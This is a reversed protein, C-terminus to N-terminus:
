WRKINFRKLLNPDDPSEMAEIPYTAKKLDTVYIGNSNKRLGRFYEGANGLWFLFITCNPDETWKTGDYKSQLDLFDLLYNDRSRNKERDHIKKLQGLMSLIRERQEEYRETSFFLRTRPDYIGDEDEYAYVHTLKNIDEGKAAICYKLFMKVNQENLDYVDEIRM